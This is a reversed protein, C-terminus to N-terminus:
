EGQHTCTHLVRRFARRPHDLRMVGPIPQSFRAPSSTFSKIRGV